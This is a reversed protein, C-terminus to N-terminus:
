FRGRQMSGVAGDLTGDTDKRANLIADDVKVEAQQGQDRVEAAEAAKGSRYAMWSVIMLKIEAFLNSLWKM